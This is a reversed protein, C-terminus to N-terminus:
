GSVQYNTLMGYINVVSTKVRIRIIMMNAITDRKQYRRLYGINPTSNLLYEKM